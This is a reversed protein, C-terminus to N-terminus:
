VWAPRPTPPVHPTHPRVLRPRPPIMAATPPTYRRPAPHPPAMAATPPTYRRPAPLPPVMAAAPPTHRRVATHRQVVLPNQRPMALQNLRSSPAAQSPQTSRRRNLSQRIAKQIVSVMKDDGAIAPLAADGRSARYSSQIRRAAVVIDHQRQLSPSARHAPSPFPKRSALAVHRATGLDPASPATAMGKPPAATAQQPAEWVDCAAVEPAEKGAIEPAFATESDSNTAVDDPSDDAETLAHVLDAASPTISADLTPPFKPALLEVIQAATARRPIKNQLLWRTTAVLHDPYGALCSMDPDSRQIRMVLTVMALNADDKKTWPSHLAMLEYMIAGLAWMDAPFSYPQGRAVEPALYLPTGVETTCWKATPALAKSLGFDGLKLTGLADILVNAPKLDRHVIRVTDHCYLLASSLEELYHLVKQATFRKSKRQFRSILYDLSGGSCFEMLIYMHDDAFWSEYYRVINQHTCKNMLAVEALAHKREEEENEKKIHIEKLCYQDNKRTHVAKACGFMGKGVIADVYLTVGRPTVHTHQRTQAPMPFIPSHSRKKKTRRASRIRVGQVLLM